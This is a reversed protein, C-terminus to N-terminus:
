AALNWLKPLLEPSQILLVVIISLAMVVAAAISIVFYRSKLFLLTTRPNILYWSVGFNRAQKISETYAWFGVMWAAVGLCWLGILLYDTV